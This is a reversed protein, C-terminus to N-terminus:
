EVSHNPPSCPTSEEEIAITLCRKLVRAEIAADVGAPIVVGAADRIPVREAVTLLERIRDSTTM